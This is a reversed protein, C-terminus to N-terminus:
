ANQKTLKLPAWMGAAGTGSWMRGLADRATLYYRDRSWPHRKGMRVRDMMMCGTWTELAAGNQSVYLTLRDGPVSAKIDADQSEDACSYCMSGTRGDPLRGNAVGTGISGHSTTPEHGCDLIRM